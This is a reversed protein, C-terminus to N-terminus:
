GEEIIIRKFEDDLSEVDYAGPLITILNFSDDKVSVRFHFNIIKNTVKFIGNHGNLFTDDIKYQKNNTQFPQILNEEHTIKKMGISM